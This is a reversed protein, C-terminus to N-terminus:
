TVIELPITEESFRRRVRVSDWLAERLKVAFNIAEDLPFSGAVGTIIWPAEIWKYLYGDWYEVVFREEKCFLNALAWLTRKMKFTRRCKHLNGKGDFPGWGEGEFAAQNCCM